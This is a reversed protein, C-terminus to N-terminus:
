RVPGDVELPSRFEEIEPELEDITKLWWKEQLLKRITEESFRYKVVRAPYGAVVAYPPVNNSVVSGAAIVAGDGITQVTNLITVNHGIWVDNGVDLKTELHDFGAKVKGLHPDSFFPHTSKTNMTHNLNFRKVTFYISCYRGITTGPALNKPTYKLPGYTYLGIDVGHMQFMKRVTVSYEEGGELQLALRRLVARYPEFRALRYLKLLLGSVASRRGGRYDTTPNM